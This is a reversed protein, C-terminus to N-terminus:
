PVSERIGRNVNNQHFGHSGPDDVLSSDKYVDEFDAPNKSFTKAVDVSIGRDIM